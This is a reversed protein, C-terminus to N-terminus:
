PAELPTPRLDTCHRHAVIHTFGMPWGLSCCNPGLLRGPPVDLAANVREQPDLSTWFRGQIVIASRDTKPVVARRVPVLAEPPWAHKDLFPTVKVNHMLALYARARRSSASLTRWLVLHVRWAIRMRSVGFPAVCWHGNRVPAPHGGRRRSLHPRDQAGGGLRKDVGTRQREGSAM